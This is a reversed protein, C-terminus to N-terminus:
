CRRRRAVALREVRERALLVEVRDPGPLEALRHVGLQGARLGAVDDLEVLVSGASRKPSSSAPAADNLTRTLSTFASRRGSGSSANAEVAESNSVISAAGRRGARSARRPSPARPRPRRARGPAAPSPRCRRPRGARTASRPRSRGVAHTVRLLLGRAVAEREVLHELDLAPIAVAQGLVAAVVGHARDLGVQHQFADRPRLLHLDRGLLDAGCIPCSAWAYSRSGFSSAFCNSRDPWITVSAPSIMREFASSMKTSRASMVSSLGSAASAAADASVASSSVSSLM